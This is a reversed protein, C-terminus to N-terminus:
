MPINQEVPKFSHKRNKIYAIVGVICIVLILIIILISILIISSSDDSLNDLTVNELCKIKQYNPKEAYPRHVTVSINVSELNKSTNVLIDCKWLNNSLYISSLKPFSKVISDTSINEFRNDDLDLVKLNLLQTTNKVNLENLENRSLNLLNLNELKQLSTFNFLKINLNSLNLEKLQKLNDFQLKNINELPNSSVDLIEMKYNELFELKTIKNNSIRFDKLHMPIEISEILNNDLCLTNTSQSLSISTNNSFKHIKNSRLSITELFNLNSFINSDIEEIFNNDLNISKLNVLEGIFSISLSKINNQSLDLHLLYNSGLLVDDHIEAIKNGRLILTSLESMDGFAIESLHTLLNYSLDIEYITSEAFTMAKIERIKNHSLNLSGLNKANTFHIDAFETLGVSQLNITHIETLVDFLNKPFKPIISNTFILTEIEHTKNNDDRSTMFVFSNTSTADIEVNVIECVNHIIVCTDSLENWNNIRKAESNSPTIAIITCIIIALWSSHM